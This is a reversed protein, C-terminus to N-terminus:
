FSAWLGGGEAGAYRRTLYFLGMAMIMAACPATRGAIPRGAREERRAEWDKVRERGNPRMGAVGTTCSGTTFAERLNDPHIDRYTASMQRM